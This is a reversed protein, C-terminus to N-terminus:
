NNIRFVAVVYTKGGFTDVKLSVTGSGSDQEDDMLDFRESVLTRAMLKYQQEKMTESTYAKVEALGISVEGKTDETIKLASEFEFGNDYISDVADEPSEDPNEKIYAQLMNAVTVADADSAQTVKVSGEAAFADNICALLEKTNFADSACGALLALAMVGTLVVALLKKLRKM